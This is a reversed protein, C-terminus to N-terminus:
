SYTGGRLLPSPGHPNKNCRGGLVRPIGKTKKRRNLSGHLVEQNQPQNRCLLNNERLNGGGGGGCLFCLCGGETDTREGIPEEEFFDKKEGQVGGGGKKGSGRKWETFLGKCM